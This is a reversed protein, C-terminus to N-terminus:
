VLEKKGHKSIDLISGTKADVIFDYQVLSANLSSSLGGKYVLHPLGFRNMEEPNVGIWSGTVKFEEKAKSKVLKLAREPTLTRSTQKAVIYGAAFGTVGALIWKSAKM